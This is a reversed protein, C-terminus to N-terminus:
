ILPPQCIGFVQFGDARAKIQGLEFLTQRLQLRELFGDHVPQLHRPLGGVVNIIIINKIKLHQVAKSGEKPDFRTKGAKIEAEFLLVGLRDAVLHLVGGLHLRPQRGHIPEIDLLVAETGCYIAEAV